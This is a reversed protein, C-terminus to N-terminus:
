LLVVGNKCESPMVTAWIMALDQWLRATDNNKDFKSPLNAFIKYGIAM